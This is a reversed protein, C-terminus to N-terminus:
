IHTADDVLPHFRGYLFYKMKRLQHFSFCLLCTRPIKRKIASMAKEFRLNVALIQTEQGLEKQIMFREIIINFREEKIDHSISILIAAMHNAIEGLYIDLEHM